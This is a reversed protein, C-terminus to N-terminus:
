GGLGLKGRVRRVLVGHSAAVRVHYRTLRRHTEVSAQLFAFENTLDVNVLCELLEEYEAPAQEIWDKDGLGWSGEQSAICFGRLTSAQCIRQFMPLRRRLWNKADLEAELNRVVRECLAIWLRERHLVQPSPVQIEGSMLCIKTSSWEELASLWYRTDQEERSPKKNLTTCPGLQDQLDDHGIPPTLHESPPLQPRSLAGGM